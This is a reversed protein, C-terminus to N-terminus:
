VRVEQCPSVGQQNSESVFASPGKQRFPREGFPSGAHMDSEMDPM